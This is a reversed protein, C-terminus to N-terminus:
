AWVRTGCVCRRYNAQRLSESVPRYPKAPPSAGLQKEGHLALYRAADPRRRFIVRDPAHPQPQLHWARM